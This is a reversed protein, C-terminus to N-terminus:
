LAYSYFYPTLTEVHFYNEYYVDMLSQLRDKKEVPFMPHVTMSPVAVTDSSVAWKFVAFTSSIKNKSRMVCGTQLLVSHQKCLNILIRVIKKSLNFFEGTQEDYCLKCRDGIKLHHIIFCNPRKDAKKQKLAPFVMGSYTVMYKQLQIKEMSVVITFWDTVRSSIANPHKQAYTFLEEMSRELHAISPNKYEPGNM